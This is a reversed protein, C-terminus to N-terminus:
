FDKTRHHRRLERKLEDMSLALFTTRKTPDCGTYIPELLSSQYPDFERANEFTAADIMIEDRIVEGSIDIDPYHVRLFDAKKAKEALLTYKVL